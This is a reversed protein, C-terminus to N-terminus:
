ELLDNNNEEKIKGEFDADDKAGAKYHRIYPALISRPIPTKHVHGKNLDLMDAGKDQMRLVTEGYVEGDYFRRLNKNDDNVYISKYTECFEKYLSHHTNLMFFGTECSFYTNDDMTHKVGFHVSLYRPDSILELLQNNMDIIAECDADVWILWDCPVNEMAHIISFAKKGFTTVKQNDSTWRRYFNNYDEGLDWGLQKWLKSKFEFDENYCYLDVNKWKKEFSSIMLKGCHLFYKKDMSTVLAYANNV